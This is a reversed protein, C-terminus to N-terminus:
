TIGLVILGNNVFTQKTGFASMSISVVYVAKCLSICERYLQKELIFNPSLPSMVGLIATCKRVFRRVLKRFLSM